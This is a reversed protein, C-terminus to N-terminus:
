PPGVVSRRRIATTPFGLGILGRALPVRNKEGLTPPGKKMTRATGLIPIQTWSLLTIAVLVLTTWFSFWFFSSAGSFSVGSVGSVGRGSSSRESAATLFSM